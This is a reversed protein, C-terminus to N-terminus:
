RPPKRVRLSAYYEETIADAIAPWGFKSVSARIYAPPLQKHSNALFLRIARAFDASTTGEVLYGTRGNLVIDPMGGVRAAIVPTGCALSELAVLGFSEYYSPIVCVDASCYYVPLLEQPVPGAFSVSDHIGLERSYHELSKLEPDGDGDGGAVILKLDAAGGLTAFAEFLRHLGKLPELRGVCLIIKGHDLGLKRRAQDRAIPSFLALNVGGPIVSIRGREADCLEALLEREGATAAIIRDPRGAVEKETVLRLDSEEEGIGASNKAAALTHFMTLHPVHWWSQLINGVWTSLWYHSHILDYNRGEQRRFSEVACAADALHAYLVLKHMEGTEGLELHIIRVRDCLGITQNEGPQHARTYIDVSHGRCGLECALERVYVNMGGTDRSGLKGQPCSHVSLMAVRLQEM